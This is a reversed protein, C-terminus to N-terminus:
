SPRRAKRTRSSSPRPTRPSPRRSSPSTPPSATRFKDGPGPRLAPRGQLHRRLAGYESGIERFVFQNGEAVASSVKNLADQAGAAIDGLPLAPLGLKRLVDDMKALKEGVAGSGKIADMFFKPLDEQRISAGAQKSAWTGFTAWNANEKGLMEGLANSMDHYGQTIALNRAVPDQMNAIAKVDAVTPYSGPAM